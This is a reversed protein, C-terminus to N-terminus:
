ADSSMLAAECVGTEDEAQRHGSQSMEAEDLDGDRPWHLSRIQRDLSGLGATFNDISPISTIVEALKKWEKSVQTCRGLNVADLHSLIERIADPLLDVIM